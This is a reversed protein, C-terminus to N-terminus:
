EFFRRRLRPAASPCLTSGVALLATWEDRTGPYGLRRARRYTATIKQRLAALGDRLAHAYQLRAECLHLLFADWRSPTFKQRIERLIPLLHTLPGPGTM